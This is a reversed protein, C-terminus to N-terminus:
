WWMDKFMSNIPVSILLAVKLIIKLFTIIFFLDSSFLRTCKDLLRM